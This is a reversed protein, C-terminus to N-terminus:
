IYIWMLVPKNSKKLIDDVKKMMKNSLCPCGWGESTGDPYIEDDSVQEWGHLFIERALANTNTKELGHLLYKINIGWQSYDRKGIKFKGLSSCHSNFENSFKPKDKTMDMSWSNECCGHSVLASLIITDKNFDWVFFRKKGSHISMDILICFDTNYDKNKCFSLAVKSKNKLKIIKSKLENKDVEKNSSCIFIVASLILLILYIRKM